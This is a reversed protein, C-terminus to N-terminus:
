ESPPDNDLLVAGVSAAMAARWKQFYPGQHYHLDDNAQDRV